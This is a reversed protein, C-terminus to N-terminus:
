EVVIALRNQCMLGSVLDREHIALHSGGRYCSITQFCPWSMIMQKLEELDGAKDVAEFLKNKTRKNALPGTIKWEIILKKAEM